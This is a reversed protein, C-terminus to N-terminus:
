YSAAVHQLDDPKILYVTTNEKESSELTGSIVAPSNCATLNLVLFVVGTIIKFTTTNM